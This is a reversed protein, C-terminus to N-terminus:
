QIDVGGFVGSAEIYLTPANEIYTNTMNRVSGFVTTRSTKVNVGAPVLIVVTGFVASASVMQDNVLYTGRLDLVCKGFAAEAKASAFPGENVQFVESGFSVEYNPSNPNNNKINEFNKNKFMNRCIIGLGCLILVAPIILKKLINWEILNFCNLLFITGIAIGIASGVNPHKIFGIACPVLIFLPWFHSFLYGISIDIVDFASLAVLAGAAVLVVGWLIDSIKNRM